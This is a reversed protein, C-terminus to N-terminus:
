LRPCIFPEANLNKRTKGTFSVSIEFGNAAGAIKSLDSTTIDYSLGLVINKYYFGAFPVVADEFRYNAGFLLDFDDSAKLQGYAGLMKEQATGQTLYLFNPTLSFKDSMKLKVGGHVTYRVPLKPKVANSSFIDTTGTIHGASFGGYINAKKDPNADFYMAGAGMDFEIVSPVVIDVGALGPNYAGTRPDFQSGSQFKSSNFYRNIVGVQLGVSIRHYGEKGFKIGTYAVSAYPTFYNYGGNGASQKFLGGGINLNKGTAYEAAVGITTFGGDFGAWQTRHVAALRYDGDMVGTLAPNLWQPYVYYQSFHPDVQAIINNCCLVMVIALIHKRTQKM